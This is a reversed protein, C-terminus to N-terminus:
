FRPRAKMKPIDTRDASEIEIHQQYHEDCLELYETTCAGVIIKEKHTAPQGCACFGDRDIIACEPNELIAHVDAHITSSSVGLISAMERNSKEAMMAAVHARRERIKDHYSLGLRRLDNQITKEDHGLRLAIESAKTTGARFVYSVRTRRIRAEQARRGGRPLTVAEEPTMGSRLRDSIVRHTLGDVRRAWQTHNLAKGDYEIIQEPNKNPISLAEEPTWGFRDIRKRIASMSIGLDEGREEYWEILTKTEGWATIMRM